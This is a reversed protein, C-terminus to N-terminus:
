ISGSPGIVVGDADPRVRKEFFTTRTQDLTEGALLSDKEVASSGVHISHSLKHNRASAESSM